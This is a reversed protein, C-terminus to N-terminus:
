RPVYLESLVAFDHSAPSPESAARINLEGAAGEGDPLTSGARPCCACASAPGRSALEPRRLRKRPPEPESNEVAVTDFQMPRVTGRPPPVTSLAVDAVVPYHELAWEEVWAALEQFTEDDMGAAARGHGVVTRHPSNQEPWRLTASLPM